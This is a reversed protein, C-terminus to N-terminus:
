KPKNFFLEEIKGRTTKFSREGLALIPGDHKLSDSYVCYFSYDPIEEKIRNVKETGKCNRGIIEGTKPNMRTGILKQVGLKDCIPQLLFEPSASCVVTPLTTDRNIFFPYIYKDKEDWFDQVIKESDVAKLFGFLKSKLKDVDGLKLSFRIMNIIQGPLFRLLKPHRRLCFLWFITESDTPFVTKDFDYLNAKM